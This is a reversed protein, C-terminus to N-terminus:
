YRAYSDRGYRDDRYSGPERSRSRHHRHSTSHRRPRSKVIITSGPQAPIVRGNVEVGITGPNAGPFAYGGGTQPYAGGAAYGSGAYPQQAGYPGALGGGSYSQSLAGPAYAPQAYAPQAYGGAGYGASGAYGVSPAGIPVGQASAYSPATPPISGGIFPSVSRRPAYPPTTGLGAAYPSASVGVSSGSGARGPIPMPSAGGLYPSPPSGFGGVGSGAFGPAQPQAQMVMPMSTSHRRTRRYPDDYPEAYPDNYPDTYPESRYSGPM